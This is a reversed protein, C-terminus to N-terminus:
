FLYEFDRLMKRYSQPYPFIKGLEQWFDKQHGKKRLHILEHYIVYDCLKKPLLILRWNFSLNGSSSCSGWRRKQNRIFVRNYEFNHKQAIELVRKKIETKASYKLQAEPINLNERKQKHENLKLAKSIIWDQNQHLFNEIIEDKNKIWYPIIIKLEKENKFFLRISKSKYSQYVSAYFSYSPHKIKIKKIIKLKSM